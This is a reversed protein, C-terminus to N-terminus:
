KSNNSNMSRWVEEPDLVQYECGGNGNECNKGVGDPFDPHDFYPEQEIKWRESSGIHCIQGRGIFPDTVVTHPAFHTDSNATLWPDRPGNQHSIPDWKPVLQKIINLDKIHVEFHLHSPSSGYRFAERGVRAIVQGAKVKQGAKVTITERPTHGYWTLLGEGHVIGIYWGFGGPNGKVKYVVGEAAALIPTGIPAAIDVGNHYGEAEQPRNQGWAAQECVPLNSPDASKGVPWVWGPLSAGNQSPVGMGSFLVTGDYSRALEEIKAVMAWNNKMYDAIACTVSGYGGVKGERVENIKNSKLNKMCETEPKQEHVNKRNQLAKALKELIEEVTKPPTFTSSNSKVTLTGEPIEGKKFQEYYAPVKNVYDQTEPINPVKPPSGDVNNMGANYAALALIMQNDYQQYRKLYKALQQAGGDINKAPDFCDGNPDLGVERCNEAILQMIGRAGKGSMENPNFDSEQKAIAKLLNPDIGYKAGADLFYQAYPVDEGNKATNSLGALDSTYTDSLKHIAAIISWPIDYKKSLNEYIQKLPEPVLELEVQIPAIFPDLAYNNSNDDKSNEGSFFGMSFGLAFFLIVAIPLLLLLSIGVLKNM